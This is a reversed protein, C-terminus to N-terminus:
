QSDIIELSKKMWQGVDDIDPGFEAGYSLGVSEEYILEDTDMKIIQLKGRYHGDDLVRVLWSKDDVTVDWIVFKDTEM